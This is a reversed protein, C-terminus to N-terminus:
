YHLTRTLVQKEAESQCNIHSKTLGMPEKQQVFTQFGTECTKHNPDIQLYHINWPFCPIHIPLSFWWWILYASALM